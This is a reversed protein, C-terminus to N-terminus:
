YNFEDKIQAGIEIEIQLNSHWFPFQSRFHSQQVSELVRAKHEDEGHRHHVADRAGEDRGKAKHEEEDLVVDVAVVQEEGVGGGLDVLPDM